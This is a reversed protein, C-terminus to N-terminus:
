RTGGPLRVASCGYTELTRDLAIGALPAAGSKNMVWVQGDPLLLGTHCASQPGDPVGFIFPKGNRMAQQAVGRYVDAPLSKPLTPGDKSPPIDMGAGSPATPTSCGFLKGAQTMLAGSVPATAQNLFWVTGVPDVVATHCVAGAADPVAFAFPRGAVLAAHAAGRDVKDSLWGIDPMTAPVPTQGPVWMGNGASSM